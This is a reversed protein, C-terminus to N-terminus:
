SGGKLYHFKRVHEELEDLTKFLAVPKCMNCAARYGEPLKYPIHTDEFKEMSVGNITRRDSDYILHEKDFIPSKPLSKRKNM